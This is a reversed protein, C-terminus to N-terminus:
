QVTHQGLFRTLWQEFVPDTFVVEKGILRIIQKNVLSERTRSVNSSRGLKFKELNDATCFGTSYELICKLYCIQKHTLLDLISEYHHSFLSLLYDFAEEVNQETCTHVTRLWSQLALHHTYFPHHNTRFIIRNVAATTIIKGSDFFRKRISENLQEIRPWKMEFIRGFRYLPNGPTEFITKMTQHNNGHMLFVVKEPKKWKESFEKQFQFPREFRAINQIEALCILLRNKKGRLLRDNFLKKFEDETFINALDLFRVRFDEHKALLKAAIEHAMNDKGFGRPASLVVNCDSSLLDTIRNLLLIHGSPLTGELPIGYWARKFIEPM